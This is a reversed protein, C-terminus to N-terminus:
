TVDGKLQQGQTPTQATAKTAVGSGTVHSAVATQSDAFTLVSKERMIFLQFLFSFINNASKRIHRLSDCGCLSPLANMLVIM